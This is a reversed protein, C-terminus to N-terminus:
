SLLLKDSQDPLSNKNKRNISSKIKMPLNKSFYTGGTM